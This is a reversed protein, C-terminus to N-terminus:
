LVEGLKERVEDERVRGPLRLFEAEFENWVEVAPRRRVEGLDISTMADAVPDGPPVRVGRDCGPGEHATLDRQAEGDGVSYGLDEAADAPGARERDDEAPSSSLRQEIIVRIEPM